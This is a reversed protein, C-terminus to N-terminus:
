WSRKRCDSVMKEFCEDCHIGCSLGNDYQLKGSKGCKCTTIEKRVQMLLKGLMDKGKKGWFMDTRSDEHLVADDTAILKDRLEPNKFKSRLGTLMTEVKIDDWNDKLEKDKRLSRGVQMALYPNPANKIWRGIEWDKAKESQYYHENTPYDCTGVYQKCRHFNSLWGYEKKRFYFNIENMIESM